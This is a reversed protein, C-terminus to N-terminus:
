SSCCVGFENKKPAGISNPLHVDFYHLIIYPELYNYMIRLQFYGSLIPLYSPDSM